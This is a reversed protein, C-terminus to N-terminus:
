LHELDALGDVAVVHDLAVQAAFDRHVDLPQHVEAGIATKAMAAAKRDADASGCWRGCGCPCPSASRRCSSTVNRARRARLSIEARRAEREARPHRPKDRAGPMVPAGSPDLSLIALSAVRTRRRSRLFMTEPTACTFAENLLVIIVMVSACPFVM